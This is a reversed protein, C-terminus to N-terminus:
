NQEKKTQYLAHVYLFVQGPTVGVRPAVSQVVQELKEGGNIRSVLEDTYTNLRDIADQTLTPAVAGAPVPQLKLTGLYRILNNLIFFPTLFFSITGWWGLTLTILTFEWFYKNICSKCLNGKIAKHFRVFLAGINQYFEVYKTSAEVGCCQCMM